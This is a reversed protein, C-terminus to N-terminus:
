ARYYLNLMQIFVPKQKLPKIVDKDFSPLYDLFNKVISPVDRALKPAINTYFQNFSEAKKANTTCNNIEGIDQNDSNKHGTLNTERIVQRQRNQHM